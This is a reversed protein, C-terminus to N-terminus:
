WCRASKANWYADSAKKLIIRRIAAEAKPTIGEFVLAGFAMIIYVRLTKKRASDSATSKKAYDNHYQIQAFTTNTTARLSLNHYSTTAKNM